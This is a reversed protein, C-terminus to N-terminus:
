DVGRQIGEYYPFSYEMYGRFSTDLQAAMRAYMEQRMVDYIASSQPEEVEPSGCFMQPFNEGHIM